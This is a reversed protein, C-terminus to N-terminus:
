FLVAALIGGQMNGADKAAIRFQGRVAALVHRNPTRQEAVQALTMFGLHLLADGVDVGIDLGQLLFLLPVFRCVRSDARRETERFLAREWTRASTEGDSPHYGGNTCNNSSGGTAVNVRAFACLGRPHKPM